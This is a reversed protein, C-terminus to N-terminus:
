PGPLRGVPRVSEQCQACLGHASLTRVHTGTLEGLRELLQTVDATAVSTTRGCGDCTVHHHDALSLGYATETGVTLGHVLGLELLRDVTRYATSLNTGPRRVEVRRHIEAVTLHAEAGDLVDLVDLRAETAREGDARLLAAARVRFSEGPAGHPSGPAGHPSGPAGHPSGTAERESV